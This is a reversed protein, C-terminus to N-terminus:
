TIVGGEEAKSDKLNSEGAKGEWSMLLGMWIGGKWREDEDVAM